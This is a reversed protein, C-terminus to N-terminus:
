YRSQQILYYNHTMRGYTDWNQVVTNVALYKLFVDTDFVTELNARWTAQMLQELIM